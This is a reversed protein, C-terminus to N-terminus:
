FPIAAALTKKAADYQGTEYLAVAHYYGYPEEGRKLAGLNKFAIIASSFDRARYLGEVVRLMSERDLGPSALVENYLKRAEALQASTLAREASAIRAAVDKASLPQKTATQPTAPQPKVVPPAAPKTEVPKTEVPKAEITKPPASTTTQAPTPAPKTTAPAPEPKAPTTTQTQTQPKAPQPAPPQTTTNTQPKAQPPPTQTQSRTPTPQQQAPPQQQTIVPQTRQPPAAVTGGTALANADAPTLHKKAVTDFASRVNSPLPLSSFKKEVREAAVLRRISDRAGDNNGLRDQAIALYALATQYNDVTEVLGFAAIRLPTAAADYQGAEVASAGRRLLSVYFDAASQAFASSAATLLLTFLLTVRAPNRM